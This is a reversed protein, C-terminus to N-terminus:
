EEEKEMALKDLESLDATVMRVLMSKKGTHLYLVSHKVFCELCVYKVTVMIGRKDPPTYSSSNAGILSVHEGGCKCCVIQMDQQIDKSKKLETM